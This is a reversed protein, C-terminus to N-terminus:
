RKLENKVAQQVFESVTQIEGNKIKDDINVLDELDLTVTRAIRM